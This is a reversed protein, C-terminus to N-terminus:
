AAQQRRRAYGAIGALGLGMLVWTGPEPIATILVSDIGIFNSNDGFPGANTVTYLFAVRGTTGTPLVAMYNTWAEPYVGPEIDPNISLLLTSFDATATSGGNLSLRVELRDPFSAQGTARTWFSLDGGNSLDIEPTMLWNSITGVGSTNNFNAGIYSDSAGSFAPFVAANGQFWGTTGVPVSNNVTFWGPLNTIDDFGEQVLTITAHASSVAFFITTALTARKFMCFSRSLGSDRRVRRLALQQANILSDRMAVLWRM